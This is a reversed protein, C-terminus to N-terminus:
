KKERLYMMLSEHDVLIIVGECTTEVRRSSEGEDCMDLLVKVGGM